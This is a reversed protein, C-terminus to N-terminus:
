GGWGNGGELWKRRLGEGVAPPAARFLDALHKVAALKGAEPEAFEDADGGGFYFPEFASL